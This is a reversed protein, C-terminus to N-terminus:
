GQQGNWRRVAGPFRKLICIPDPWEGTLLRGTPGDAECYLGLAKAQSELSIELRLERRAVAGNQAVATVFWKHACLVGLYPM